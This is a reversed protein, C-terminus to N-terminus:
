AAGAQEAFRLEWSHELRLTNAPNAALRPFEKQAPHRCRTM